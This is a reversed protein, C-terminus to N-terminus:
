VVFHAIDIINKESPCNGTIFEPKLCNKACEQIDSDANDPTENTTNDNTEADANGEFGEMTQYIVRMVDKKINNFVFLFIVVIFINLAIKIM